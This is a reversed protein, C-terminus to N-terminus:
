TSQPVKGVLRSLCSPPWLGLTDEALGSAAGTETWLFPWCWQGQGQLRRRLRGAHTRLCRSSWLAGRPGGCAGGLEALAGPLLAGLGEAEAGM